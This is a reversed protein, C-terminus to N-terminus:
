LLVSVKRWKRLKVQSSKRQKVRISPV